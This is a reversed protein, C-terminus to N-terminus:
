IRKREKAAIEALAANIRTQWGPGAARFHHLVEPDLRLKVAIKPRESKPRGRRAVLKDVLADGLVERAPRMNALMEDTLEPSDDHIAPDYKAKM